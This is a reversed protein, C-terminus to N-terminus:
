TVLVAVVASFESKDEGEGMTRIRFEVVSDPPFGSLDLSTNTTYDGNQWATEGRLRREIGYTSAGKVKDWSLHVFGTKLPDNVVMFNTPAVVLVPEKKQNKARMKRLIYGSASIIETDNKALDEVKISTFYLQNVLAIRCAEQKDRRDTGRFSEFDRRAASFALLAPLLDLLAAVKISSFIANNDLRTTVLAGFPELEAPTMNRYTHSVMPKFKLFNFFLISKM